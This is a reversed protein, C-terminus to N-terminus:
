KKLLRLYSKARMNTSDIQLAKLFNQKAIEPQQMYLNAVGQNNHFLSRDPYLDSGKKFLEHAEQYMQWALLTKGVTNLAGASLATEENSQLTDLKMLASQSGETKFLDAIIKRVNENELQDYRAQYDGRRTHIDLEIEVEDSLQTLGDEMVTDWFDGGMVNYDKRKLTIKGSYDVQENAAWDHSIATPPGFPITLVKTVGNMSFHGTLEFSGDGTAESSITEFSINPFEKEKFWGESTILDNDRRENGTNISNVDIVVSIDVHNLQAPDYFVNGDFTDFRGRVPSFGFYKIKFGIYSHQDDIIYDKGIFQSTDFTDVSTAIVENKADESTIDNKCSFFAVVFLLLILKKM